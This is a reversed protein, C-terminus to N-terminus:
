LSESPTIDRRMISKWQPNVGRQGNASNPANWRNSSQCIEFLFVTLIQKKEGLITVVSFLPSAVFANRSKCRKRSRASAIRIQEVPVIDVAVMQVHVVVREIRKLLIFTLHRQTKQRNSCKPEYIKVWVNQNNRTRAWEWINLNGLACQISAFHNLEMEAPRGIPVKSTRSGPPTSAPCSAHHEPYHFRWTTQAANPDCESAYSKSQPWVLHGKTFRM